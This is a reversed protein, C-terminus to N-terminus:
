IFIYFVFSYNIKECLIPLDRESFGMWHYNKELHYEDKLLVNLHTLWKEALSNNEVDIYINNKNGYRDRLVIKVEDLM